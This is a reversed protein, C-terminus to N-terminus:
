TRSPADTRALAMHPPPDAFSDPLVAIAFVCERPEAPFPLSWAIRREALDVAHVSAPAASGVLVLDADLVALGRSFAPSGPVTVAVPEGAEGDLPRRVLSGTPSDNYVLGGGLHAVNHRPVDAGNEHALIRAPGVGGALLLVASTSGQARDAPAEQRRLRKARAHRLAAITRPPTRVAIRAAAAKVWRRRLAAPTLIRGLQVLLGAESPAVGNVHGVDYVGAHAVLPDRLDQDLRPPPLRRFGLARVLDPEDRWSWASRLEGGWGLHLLLDGAPATVHIGEGGALIDHVSGMLDHSIEGAPRWESDLLFLREANAIVLRGDHVDVGRAGRLGGRPNPDRERHVSEPVPVRALAQRNELDLVNLFGSPEDSYALRVVTTVAVRTV